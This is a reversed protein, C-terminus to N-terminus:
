NDILLLTYHITVDSDTGATIGAFWIDTKEPFVDAGGIPDAQDMIVQSGSVGDMRLLTIAPDFPTSVNDFNKRARLWIDVSQRVDDVNITTHVIYATKGAPVSFHSTQSIGEPVGDEVLIEAQLAGGGNVQLTINGANGGGTTSAYAGADTVYFKNVRAISTPVAVATIGNTAVSESVETGALTLGEITVHQAGTGAVTDNASDSLFELATDATLWARTLTGGILGITWIDAVATGVQPNRASRSTLTHGAVKGRAVQLLFETSGFYSM